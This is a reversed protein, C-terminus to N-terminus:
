PPLSLFSDTVIFYVLSWHDGLFAEFFKRATGTSQEHGLIGAVVGDDPCYLSVILPLLVNVNISCRSCVLCQELTM